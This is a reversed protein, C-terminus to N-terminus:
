GGETDIDFIDVLRWVVERAQEEIKRLREIEKYQVECRDRLAEVEAKLQQDIDM